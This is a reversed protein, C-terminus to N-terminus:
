NFLIDIVASILAEDANDSLILYRMALLLAKERNSKLSAILRATHNTNDPLQEKARSKMEQVRRKAENIESYGYEAM